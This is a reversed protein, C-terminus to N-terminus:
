KEIIVYEVGLIQTHPNKSIVNVSKERVKRWKKVICRSMKVSEVVILSDRCVMSGTFTSDTLLGDFDYWKDHARLSVAPVAVTDRMIITDRPVTSLQHITEIQAATISQLDRKETRLQKILAADKARYQEYEKVSLELAQVKAASLSDCVRYHEVNALAAHTTREYRDRENRVNQLIAHQALAWLLLAVFAAGIILWKKM